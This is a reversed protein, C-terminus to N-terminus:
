VYRQYTIEFAELARHIIVSANNKTVGLIEAIDEISLDSFYKLLIVKQHREPLKKIVEHVKARDEAQEAKERPNGAPDTFMEAKEIAESKKNSHTRFYDIMMRTTITYLWSKFNSKAPNFSKINELVRLFINSVLDEAEARNGLRRAVYGFIQPLYKEYLKSFAEEDTKAQEALLQEDEM